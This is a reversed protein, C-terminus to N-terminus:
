HIRTKNRTGPRVGKNVMKADIGRKNSRKQGRIEGCFHSMEYPSRGMVM